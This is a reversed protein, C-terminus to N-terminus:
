RTEKMAHFRGSAFGIMLPALMLGSSRWPEHLRDLLPDDPAVAVTRVGLSRLWNLQGPPPWKREHNAIARLDTKVGDSLVALRDGDMTELAFSYDLDGYSRARLELTASEAVRKQAELAAEASDYGALGVLGEPRLDGARGIEVQIGSKSRRWVRGNEATAHTPGAQGVRLTLRARTAGVFAVRIEEDEEAEGAELPPLWLSVHDAERGKSAHITGVIPGEDGFEPSAAILPPNSRALRQRLRHLDVSGDAEGGLERLLTWRSQVQVSDVGGEARGTFEALSIRRDTWNWLMEAIWPHIPAPLGSMRLRYPRDHAYSAAKLVEARRRFLILRDSGAIGVGGDDAPDAQDHALRLIDERVAAARESARGRAMVRRRTKLFLERLRPCRTRRVETLAAKEFARPLLDLLSVGGGLGAEDETFGYIAQAPDAFITVGADPDLHKVLVTVLRARVGMIDQAEDVILHRVRGLYDQLDADSEVRELTAGIGEDFSGSLTAEADFGSQLAWAYADLTSIRVSAVDEPSTFDAIRNRIETVATRTFSIMWIKSAPVGEDILNAVRACAAWTKGTGPPADVLLRRDAPARVISEQPDPGAGPGAIVAAPPQSIDVSPGDLDIAGDRVPWQRKRYTLVPGADTMFESGALRDIERGGRRVSIMIEKLGSGWFSVEEVM